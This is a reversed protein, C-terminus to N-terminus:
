INPLAPARYALRIKVEPRSALDVKAASVPLPHLVEAVRKEAERRASVRSIVQMAEEELAIEMNAISEPCEYLEAIM